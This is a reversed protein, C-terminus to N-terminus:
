DESVEEDISDDLPEGRELRHTDCLTSIWGHSNAKGPAGCEECTRYSMSEAMRVMGRIVEDGGYYYFNLGGFKEKVQSAIVQAVVPTEKRYEGRKIIQTANDIAWQSISGDGFNMYRELASRDNKELARKLARNYRLASLRQKRSWDIHHQINNCLADIINFWGDHCDFGWCMATHTMPAYRDRFIKPYKQVLLDDLEQKM